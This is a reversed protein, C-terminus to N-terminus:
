WNFRIGFSTEGELSRIPQTDHIHHRLFIGMRGSPVKHDAYLEGYYRSSEGGDTHFFLDSHLKAGYLLGHASLVPWDFEGHLSWDFIHGKQFSANSPRYVGASLSYEPTWGAPMWVATEAFVPEISNSVGLKINNMYQGCTDAMDINHFCEHDTFLTFLLERYDFGFTGRINWHAGYVNFATAGEEDSQGMYTEIGLGIGFTLPGYRVISADDDIRAYVLQNADPNFFYRADFFGSNQGPFSLDWAAIISLFLLM